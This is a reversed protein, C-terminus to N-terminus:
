PELRDDIFGSPEMLISGAPSNKREKDTKTSHYINQDSVTIRLYSLLVSSAGIMRDM